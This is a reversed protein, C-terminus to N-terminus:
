KATFGKVIKEIKNADFPKPLFMDAGSELAKKQIALNNHASCIVIKLDPYKAKLSSTIEIGNQNPMVVDMFVVQPAFKEIKELMEAGDAAQMVEYGDELLIDEILERMYVSDDVVMIRAKNKM